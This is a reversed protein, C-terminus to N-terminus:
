SAKILNVRWNVKQRVYGRKVFEQRVTKLHQPTFDAASTGSYLTLLIEAVIKYNVNQAASVKREKDNLFRLVLEDLTIGGQKPSRLQGAL